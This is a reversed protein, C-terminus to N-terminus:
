LQYIGVLNHIDLDMMLVSFFLTMFGREGVVLTNM